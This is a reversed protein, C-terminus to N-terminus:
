IAIAVFAAGTEKKRDATDFAEKIQGLAFCHTIMKKVGIRDKSILHLGIGQERDIDHMAFSVGPIFQIESM